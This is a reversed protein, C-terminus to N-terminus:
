VSVSPFFHGPSVTKAGVALKMWTSRGYEKSVVVLMENSESNYWRSGLPLGEPPSGTGISTAGMEIEEIPDQQFIIHDILEDPGDALLFGDLSNIVQVLCDTTNCIFYNRRISKRLSIDHIPCRCKSLRDLRERITQGM